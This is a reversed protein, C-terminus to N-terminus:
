RDAVCNGRARSALAALCSAASNAAASLATPRWMTSSLKRWGSDPVAAVSWMGANEDRQRQDDAAAQVPARTGTEAGDEREHEAQETNERAGRRDRSAAAAAPQWQSRGFGTCRQVPVVRRTQAVDITEAATDLSRTLRM